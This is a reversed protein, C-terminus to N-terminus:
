RRAGRTVRLEEVAREREATWGAKEKWAVAAQPDRLNWNEYM